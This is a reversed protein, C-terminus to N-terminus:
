RPKTKYREKESFLDIVRVKTLFEASHKAKAPIVYEDGKECIRAKGNIILRMKGKILIGWQDYDHSHEPVQAKPEMEFFALQHKAGQLIWARVGKVPIEAEPLCTIIDPFGKVLNDKQNSM